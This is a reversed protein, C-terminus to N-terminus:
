RVVGASQDDAEIRAAREVFRVARKEIEHGVLKAGREGVRAGVLLLSLAGFSERLEIPCLRREEAVDAVFESCREGQQDSRKFVAQGIRGRRQRGDMPFPLLDRMAIGLAQQPQDIRQQIEGADLGPADVGRVLRGVERANM